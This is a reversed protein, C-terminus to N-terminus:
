IREGRGTIFDLANRSTHAIQIAVTKIPAAKGAKGERRQKNAVDAGNPEQRTAHVTMGREDAASNKM